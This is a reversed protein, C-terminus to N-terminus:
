FKREFEFWPSCNRWRLKQYQIGMSRTMEVIKKIHDETCYQGFLIGRLSNRYEFFLEKYCEFVVFRYENENSWDSAKEFFLRKQYQLLHDYAYDVKGRKELHDVAVIFAPEMQIEAINRDRYTVFDARYTKDSFKRHFLDYFRNSDFILCVGSHNGGYQAWMRPKCYGRNHMDRLFNEKEERDTSFCLVKSGGKLVPNMINSLYEPTYKSLDRNENTGPIFFWEKAEKPDNTNTYSSLRLNKNKLIFDIATESSTYHYIYQNYHHQFQFM